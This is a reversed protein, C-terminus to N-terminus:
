GVDDEGDGRCDVRSPECSRAKRTGGGKEVTVGEGVGEGLEEGMRERDRGREKIKEACDEEVLEM